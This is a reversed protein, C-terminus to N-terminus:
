KRVKGRKKTPVKKSKKKATNGLRKGSPAPRGKGPLTMAVLNEGVANIRFNGRGATDLYGSNKANNLTMTADTPQKRGGVLRVAEKLDKAGIVEKREEAPAEFRYYYAVVVAFQQDTSPAKSTTFQKIDVVPAPSSPDTKEVPLHGQGAPAPTGSVPPVAPADLGLIESAFRMAREQKEKELGKLTEVIAKAGDLENDIAGQQQAQQTM